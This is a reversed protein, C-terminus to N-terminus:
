NHCVNAITFNTEVLSLINIFANSRMFVLECILHVHPSAIFADNNCANLATCEKKGFNHSNSVCANRAIFM